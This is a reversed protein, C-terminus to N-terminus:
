LSGATETGDKPSQHSANIRMLPRLETPLAILALSVALRQRSTTVDGADLAMERSELAM